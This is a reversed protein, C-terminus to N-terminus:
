KPLLFLSAIHSLEFDGVTPSSPVSLFSDPQCRIQFIGETFAGLQNLRRATNKFDFLVTLKKEALFCQATERFFPFDFSDDLKNIGSLREFLSLLLCALVCFLRSMMVHHRATATAPSSGAVCRNHAAQEAM